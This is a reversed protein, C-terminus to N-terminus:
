CFRLSSRHTGFDDCWVTCPRLCPLSCLLTGAAEAKEQQMSTSDEEDATLKIEQVSSESTDNLNLTKFDFRTQDGAMMLGKTTDVQEWLCKSLVNNM